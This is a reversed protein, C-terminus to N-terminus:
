VVGVCRLTVGLSAQVLTVVSITPVGLSHCCLPELAVCTNIM